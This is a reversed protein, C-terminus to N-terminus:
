EPIRPPKPDADVSVSSSAVASAEGTTAGSMAPTAGTLCDESANVAFEVDQVVVTTPVVAAHASTRERVVAYPDNRVSASTASEAATTTRPGVVAVSNNPVVSTTPWTTVILLMSRVTTPTSADAPESVVLLRSSWAMTGNPVAASRSIPPDFRRASDVM